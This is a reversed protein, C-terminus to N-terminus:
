GVVGSIEDGTYGKGMLFRYLKARDGDPNEREWREKLYQLNSEYVTEDLEALKENVLSQEVGRKRLEVALKVRGWRKLGMKGRIFSEAFRADDVYHEAELLALLEDAEASSMKLERMKRRVEWCSRDQYACYKLVRDTNTMAM